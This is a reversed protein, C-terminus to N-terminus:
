LTSLIKELFPDLKNTDFLIKANVAKSTRICPSGKARSAQVLTERPYGLKTLETISMMKKPFGDM